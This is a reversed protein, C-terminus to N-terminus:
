MPDKFRKVGELYTDCSEFLVSVIYISLFILIFASLSVVLALGIINSFIALFYVFFLVGSIFAGSVILEGLFVLLVRQNAIRLLSLGVSSLVLLAFSFFLLPILNELMSVSDPLALQAYFNFASAAATIVSPIFVITKYLDLLEKSYNVGLRDSKAIFTFFQQVSIKSKNQLVLYSFMVLPFILFGILLFVWAYNM